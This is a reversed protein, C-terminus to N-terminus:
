VCAFVFSKCSLARSPACRREKISFYARERAEDLLEVLRVTDGSRSKFKKNDAGLVM